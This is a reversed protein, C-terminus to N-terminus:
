RGQRPYVLNWTGKLSSLFVGLNTYKILSVQISFIIKLKYDIFNIKRKWNIEENM